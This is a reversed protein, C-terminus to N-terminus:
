GQSHRQESKSTAPHHVSRDPQPRHLQGCLGDQLAFYFSILMFISYLADFLSEASELKHQTIVCSRVRGCCRPGRAPGQPAAGCAASGRAGGCRLSEQCLPYRKVLHRGCLLMVGSWCSKLALLGEIGLDLGKKLNSVVTQATESSDCRQRCYPDSCCQLRLNGQRMPSNCHSSLLSCGSLSSSAGFRLDLDGIRHAEAAMACLLLLVPCVARWCCELPFPTVRPKDFQHLSKPTPHGVQHGLAWYAVRLDAPRASLPHAQVQV